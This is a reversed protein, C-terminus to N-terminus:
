PWLYVHHESYITRVRGIGASSLWYFRRTPFGHEETGLATIVTRDITIPDHM